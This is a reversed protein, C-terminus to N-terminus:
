RFTVVATKDDIVFTTASFQMQRDLDIANVHAKVMVNRFRPTEKVLRLLTIIQKPVIVGMSIKKEDPNQAFFRNSASRLPLADINDHSPSVVGYFDVYSLLSFILSDVENIESQSFSLDGRWKLYDYLSGM